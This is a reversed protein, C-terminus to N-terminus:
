MKSYFSSKKEYRRKNEEEKLQEKVSGGHMQAVAKQGNKENLAQPHDKV